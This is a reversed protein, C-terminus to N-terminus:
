RGGPLTNRQGPFDGRCGCCTGDIMTRNRAGAGRFGEHNGRGPLRRCISSRQHLCASRRLPARAAPSGKARTATGEIPWTKTSTPSGWHTSPLYMQMFEGERQSHKAWQASATGHARADTYHAAGSSPPVLISADRPHERTRQHLRRTNFAPHIMPERPSHLKGRLTDEGSCNRWAPFQNSSLCTAPTWAEFITNRGPRRLREVGPAPASPGSREFGLMASRNSGTEGGCLRVVSYGSVSSVWYRYLPRCGLEREIQAVSLLTSRSTCSLEQSWPFLVAGRGHSKVAAGFPEFWPRAWLEKIAFSTSRRRQTLARRECGAGGHL